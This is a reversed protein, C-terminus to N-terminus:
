FEQRMKKRAITTICGTVTLASHQRLGVTEQGAKRSQRIM